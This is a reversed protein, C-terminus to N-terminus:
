FLNSPPFLHHGAIYDKLYARIAQKAAEAGWVIVADYGRKIKQATFEIQEKSPKVKGIKLEIWLGGKGNLPFALFLDSVGKKVGMLKLMHGERPSCKRENAFHHFDSELEPFNHNFWNVVKIQEIRETQVM